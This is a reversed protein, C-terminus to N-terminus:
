QTPVGASLHTTGKPLFAPAKPYTCSCFSPNQRQTPVCDFHPNQRQTPVCNFHPNKKHTPVCRFPSNHKQTHVGASDHTKDKPQYVLAQQHTCLHFSLSRRQTRVGTSFHTTGKPLYLSAKQTPVPAKPHPACTSPHTTGLHPCMKSKSTDTSLHAMGKCSWGTHTHQTNSYKYHHPPTPLPLSILALPQQTNRYWSQFSPPPPPPPQHVISCHIYNCQTLYHHRHPPISPYCVGTLSQQTSCPQTFTHSMLWGPLLLGM